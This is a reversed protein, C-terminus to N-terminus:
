EVQMARAILEVNRRTAGLNSRIVKEAAAAIAARREPHALLDAITSELEAADQVQIAARATVFERSIARFNQMNPGFLVPCGLAAPEVINQGGEGLLSKGVFVVTAVEYFWRLEGTTNVILCEVPGADASRGPDDRRLRYRVRRRQASAVVDPTREVHRPVLVLFLDPFRQRLSATVQFLIDEEGAHTSGAVLVPRNPAVGLERLVAAADLRRSENKPVSADYKMNGTTVVRDPAIGAALFSEADERSQACVLALTNAVSRFLGRLRRYRRASRPSMRANVLFVPVARRAATWLHNPWLESEILILFDPQILDYARRVCAPLDQPFYLLQIDGPLRDCALAYGTSTTTTLVLQTAAFQERLAPILLLALNVEGVSVAQIWCRPASKTELAVRSAASYFGFRQLFNARYKGRKWMKYLFLPSLLVFGIVYIITYLAPMLDSVM